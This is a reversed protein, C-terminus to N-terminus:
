HLEIGSHTINSWLKKHLPEILRTPVTGPIRQTNHVNLKAHSIENETAQSDIESNTALSSNSLILKQRKKRSTTFFFEAKVLARLRGNLYDVNSSSVRGVLIKKFYSGYLDAADHTIM